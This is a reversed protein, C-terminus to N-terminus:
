AFIPPANPPRSSRETCASSASAVNRSLRGVAITHLRSSDITPWWLRWGNWMVVVHPAFRSPVITATSVRVTASPPAYADVLTSTSLHAVIKACPGYRMGFTAVSPITTYVFLTGLPANRPKPAGCACQAASDIIARIACASSISGASM